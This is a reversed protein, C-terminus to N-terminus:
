RKYGAIQYYQEFNMLQQQIDCFHETEGNLFAEIQRYVGPKFNRDLSDDIDIECRAVSHKKVEALKEMPCMILKRNDTMLELGWRGASEWNAHYSFLCGQDTVGAGSFVTGATHWSIAGAQFCAMETPSGCLDTFLDIVHIPNSLIWHRLIEPSYGPPMTNLWETFDFNCSRIGGDAEIIERAKLTSAFFRRNFGVLVSSGSVRSHEALRSVETLSIGGPKELLINKVKAEMLQGAVQALQDNSVAVIAHSPM